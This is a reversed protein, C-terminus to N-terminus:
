NPLPAILVDDALRNGWYAPGVIRVSPGGTGAVPTGPRASRGGYGGTRNALTEPDQAPAERARPLPAAANAAETETQGLAEEAASLGGTNLALQQGQPTGCSCAPDLEKRYRFANALQTYPQGAVSMFTEADATPDPHYYLEVATGPCLQQCIQRDTAFRASTTSFSIPFYDGDCSRVCLTRYLAGSERGYAGYGGYGGYGPTRRIEEDLPEGPGFLRAFFGDGDSCAGRELISRIQEMRRVDGAGRAHRDRLAQLRVLNDEMQRLRLVLSRCVPEPRSRFLMFGGGYCNARRAEDRTRALVAAQERFARDYRAAQQADGAAAGSQLRALEARLANCSQALAPGALGAALVLAAGRALWRAAAGAFQAGRTSRGVIM